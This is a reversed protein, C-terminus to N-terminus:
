RRLAKVILEEKPSKSFGVTSLQKFPINNHTDINAYFEDKSNKEAFQSEVVIKGESNRTFPILDIRAPTGKYWIFYNRRESEEDKSSIFELEPFCSVVQKLKLLHDRNILVDMTSSMGVISDRENIMDALASFHYYDFGAFSLYNFLDFFNTMTEKDEENGLIENFTADNFRQIEDRPTVRKINNRALNSRQEKLNAYTEFAYTM